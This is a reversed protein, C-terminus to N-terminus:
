INEIEKLIEKLELNRIKNKLLQYQKLEHKLQSISGYINRDTIDRPRDSFIDIKYNINDFKRFVIEMLVKDNMDNNKLYQYYFTGDSRFYKTKIPLIFRRISLAIKRNMKLLSMYFSIRMNHWLNIPESSPIYTFGIDTLFKNIEKFDM